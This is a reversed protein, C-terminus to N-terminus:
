KSAQAIDYETQFAMVNTQHLWVLPEGCHACVQNPYCKWNKGGSGDSESYGTLQVDNIPKSCNKCFASGTFTM